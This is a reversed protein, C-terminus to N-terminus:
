YLISVDMFSRLGNFTVTYYEPLDNNDSPVSLIMANRDIMFQVPPTIDGPAARGIVSARLADKYSEFPRGVLADLSVPEGTTIDLLLYSETFRNGGTENKYSHTFNISIFTDNAFSAYATVTQNKDGATVLAQAYDMIAGNVKAELAADKFGKLQLIDIAAEKYDYKKDTLEKTDAPSFYLSRSIFDSLAAMGEAQLDLMQACIAGFHSDPYLNAYNGLNATLGGNGAAFMSLYSGEPGYLLQAVQRTYLAKLQFHIFDGGTTQLAKEVQIIDAALLDFKYSESVYYRGQLRSQYDILMAADASFVSALDVLAAWDAECVPTEEYRVITLLSDAVRQYENRVGEDAIRPIKYVDLIGSMTDNLATMYAAEILRGNMLYSIDLQALLLRELLLDGDEPTLQEAHNKLYAGIEPAGPSRSLFVEAASEEPQSTPSAAPPSISATESPAAGNQSGPACAAVAVATIVALFLSAFKKM